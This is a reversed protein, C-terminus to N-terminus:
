RIWPIVMGTLYRYGRRLLSQFESGVHRKGLSWGPPLPVSFDNTQDRHGYSGVGQSVFGAKYNDFTSKEGEPILEWIMYRLRGVRFISVRPDRSGLTDHRHILLWAVAVGNPTGLLAKGEDSDLGFTLRRDWPVQVSDRDREFLYDLLPSTVPNTIRHSAVFRLTKPRDTIRKWVEWLADSLQHLRPIYQEVEDDPVGRGKVYWAPSYASTILIIGHSPYYYANYGGATKQQAVM